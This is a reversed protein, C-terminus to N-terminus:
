IDRLQLNARYILEQCERIELIADRWLEAFPVALRELTRIGPPHEQRIGLKRLNEANRLRTIGLACASRVATEDMKM